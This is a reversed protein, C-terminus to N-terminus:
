DDWPHIKIQDVSTGKLLDQVEAKTTLSSTNGSITISNNAMKTQTANNFYALCGDTGLEITSDSITIDIDTIDAAHYYVVRKNTAGTVDITSGNIINVTMNSQGTILGNGNTGTKIIKVNDLTM